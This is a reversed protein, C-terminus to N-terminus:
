CPLFGAEVNVLGAIISTKTHGRIGRIAPMTSARIPSIQDSKWRSAADDTAAEHFV